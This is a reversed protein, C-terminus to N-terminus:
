QISTPFCPRSSTGGNRIVYDWQDYVSNSRAARYQYGYGLTFIGPVNPEDPIQELFKDLINKFKDVRMATQNRIEKPLKNFAIKGRNFPSDLIKVSANELYSVTFKRGTRCDVHTTEFHEPATIFGELIKWMFIILYRDFRREISYLKLYKLRKWYNIDKVTEIHRTFTRQLAEIKQKQGVRTPNWLQSCYDLRPIVLSKWLTLMTVEDRSRFTRLIWGSLQKSKACIFEIHDDFSLDASMLVGLDREKDVCKIKSGDPALYDYDYDINVKSNKYRILSFKDCNFTLNNDDAWSYVNRLDDNLLKFDGSNMIEKILKSDDAFSKLTSNKIVEPMDNIMMIFLIPGLVTGQPVGSIVEKETSESGALVVKQKRNLLFNHLWSYMKGHIKLRKVKSLLIKHDVKDFARAFDLYIVDVCKGSNIYEYIKTYHCLLQTLCSKKSRFGHQFSGILNNTELHFVLNKKIIKEFIKIIHPTLSIPRYNEPKDKRGKKFIPVIVSKKCDEPIEGTGLSKKWLLYIPYSLNQSCEKLIKPTIGDNGAASNTPIDKIAAKVDDVSFYIDTLTDEACEPEDDTLDVKKPESFSSVFQNQLIECIEQKDKTAMGNKNTMNIIKERTSSKKKAYSYFYKCNTKIKSIAENEERKSENEFSLKIEQEIKEHRNILSQKTPYNSLQLRIRKRKRMLIRRHKRESSIKKKNKRKKKAYKIVIDSITKTVFLYTENVDRNNIEDDWKIQELESNVKKFDTSYINVNSLPNSLMEEYSDSRHELQISTELNIMNHDSFATPFIDINYVMNENNAYILDLINSGRTPETVFQTMCLEDSLEKLKLQQANRNFKPCPTNLSPHQKWIINPFNLDGFLITENMTSSTHDLIFKITENFEEFKTDPPRYLASIEINTGGIDLDVNLYECVGNSFETRVKSNVNEKIYIAVGGHSRGVRDKRYINYGDIKVENDIIDSNLHTETLIIAINNNYESALEKLYGSKNRSTKPYLGQINVYLISCNTTINM